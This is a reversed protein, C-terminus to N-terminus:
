DGDFHEQVYAHDSPLYCVIVRMDFVHDLFVLDVLFTFIIPYTCAWGLFLLVLIRIIKRM